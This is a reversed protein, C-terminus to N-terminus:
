TGVWRQLGVDREAARLYMDRYYPLLEEAQRSCEALYSKIEPVLARVERKIEAEDVTLLRGDEVLIEGGVMTLVVSSGTECFVLQRRLDLLPTFALTDLDLMILDAAYGPALSGIRDELGLSRAGGRTLAALIEPAKPWDLYNPEAIHQILHAVKGVTWLNMGDDAPVEDIGICINVGAQKLRRFPMVGSGLKLNCVPNHAVSCGSQALLEIDAEDIWIAHIVIAREDLVGQDHAYRVLSGGLKEEGFVRQLKTELIHMNYPIEHERSLQALAALYDPSVRHPASCSLSSRLRGERAGHWRAIFDRNIALLETNPLRRAEDMRRKIEPPVIEALFPLKEYEILNGQNIAVTARMGSDGYARMVGDIEPQSVTPIFFVDDHLSTVGQKLLDIAGLITRLYAFRESVPEEALPPVEYLMFLELPMDDLAGKILNMPSHFHGNILGPMVLKGRGDIVRAGPRPDLGADPGIREILGGSIVLDATEYERDQDDFTLVRAERIVTDM